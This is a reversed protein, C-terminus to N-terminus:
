SQEGEPAGGEAQDAEGEGNDIRELEEFANLDNLAGMGMDFQNDSRDKVDQIEEQTMSRIKLEPLADPDVEDEKINLILWKESRMDRVIAAARQIAKLNGEVTFFEKNEKKARALENLALKTLTNAHHLHARKAEQIQHILDEADEISAGVIAEHVRERHEHARAGRKVGLAKMKRSITEQAVGYTASLEALTSEGLEWLGGIEAWEKQKLRKKAGSNQSEDTM